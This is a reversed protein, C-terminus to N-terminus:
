WPRRLTLALCNRSGRDPFLPVAARWLPYVPPIPEGQSNWFFCLHANGVLRKMYGAGVERYKADPLPPQKPCPLTFFFFFVSEGLGTQHFFRSNTFSLSCKADHSLTESGPETCSETIRHGLPILQFNYTMQSESGRAQLQVDVTGAHRVGEGTLGAPASSPCLIAPICDTRDSLHIPLHRDQPIPMLCSFPVGPSM